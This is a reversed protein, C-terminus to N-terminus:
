EPLPGPLEAENFKSHSRTEVFSEVIDGSRYVTGEVEVRLLMFDEADILLDEQLTMADPLEAMQRRLEELKGDPDEVKMWGPLLQKLMEDFSPVSIPVSTAHSLRIVRRGGVTEDPPRVAQLYQNFDVGYHESLLAEEWAPPRDATLTRLLVTEQTNWESGYAGRVYKRGGYRLEEPWIRDDHDSWRYTDKGVRIFTSNTETTEGHKETVRRTTREFSELRRGAEVVRRLIDEVSLDQTM